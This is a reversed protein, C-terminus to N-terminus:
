RSRVILRARLTSDASRRRPSRLSAAGLGQERAFKSITSFAEEGPDLVMDSSRNWVDSLAFIVQM